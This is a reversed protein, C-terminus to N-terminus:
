GISYEGFYCPRYVSGQCEECALGLAGVRWCTTCSGVQFTRTEIQVSSVNWVIVDLTVSTLGGARIVTVKRGAVVLFQDRLLKATGGIGALILTRRDFQHRTQEDLKEMTLGGRDLEDQWLEADITGAPPSYDGELVRVFDGNPSLGGSSM